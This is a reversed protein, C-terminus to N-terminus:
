REVTKRIVIPNATGKEPEIFGCGPAPISTLSGKVLKIPNELAYVGCRVGSSGIDISLHAAVRFAISNM